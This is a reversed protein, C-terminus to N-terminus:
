TRLITCMPPKQKKKTKKAAVFENDPDPTSRVYM